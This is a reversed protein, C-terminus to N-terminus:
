NYFNRWLILVYSVTSSGNTDGGVQIGELDVSYNNYNRFTFLITGGM